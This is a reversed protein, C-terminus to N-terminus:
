KNPKSIEDRLRKAVMDCLLVIARNADTDECERIVCNLTEKLLKADPVALRLLVLRTRKLKKTM